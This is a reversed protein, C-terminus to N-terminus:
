GPVYLGELAAAKPDCMSRGELRSEYETLGVYGGEEEPHVEISDFKLRNSLGYSSSILYQKNGCLFFIKSVNISFPFGLEDSSAATNLPPFVPCGLSTLARLCIGAEELESEPSWDIFVFAELTNSRSFSSFELSNLSLLLQM